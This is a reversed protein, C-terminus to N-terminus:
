GQAPLEEVSKGCSSCFRALAPNDAEGCNQCVFRPQMSQLGWKLMGAMLVAVMAKLGLVPVPSYDAIIQTVWEAVPLLVEKGLVTVILVAFAVGVNLWDQKVVAALVWCFLVSLVAAAFVGQSQRLLPLELVPTNYFHYLYDPLFSTGIPVPLLAFLWIIGRGAAYSYLFALIHLVAFLAVLVTLFKPVEYFARHPMREGAANLAVTLLPALSALFTVGFILEPPVVSSLSYVFSSLLFASGILMIGQRRFLAEIAVLVIHPGKGGDGFRRRMRSVIGAKDLITGLVADFAVVSLLILVFFLVPVAILKAGYGLLGLSTTEFWRELWHLYVVAAIVIGVGVIWGLPHRQPTVAADEGRGQRLKKTLGAALGFIVGLAFLSGVLAIWIYFSKGSGSVLDITASIALGAFLVFGFLEGVTRYAVPDGDPKALYAHAVAAYDIQRSLVKGQLLIQVLGIAAFLLYVGFAVYTAVVYANPVGFRALVFGLGVVGFFMLLLFGVETRVNSQQGSPQTNSTEGM